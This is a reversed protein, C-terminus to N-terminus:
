RCAGRQPLAPDRHVVDGLAQHCRSERALWSSAQAPVKIISGVSTSVLASSSRNQSAISAIRSSIRSISSPLHVRVVVRQLVRRVRSHLSPAAIPIAGVAALSRTAERGTREADVFVPWRHVAHVVHRPPGCGSRCMGAAPPSDRDSSLLTEFLRRDPAARKSSSLQNASFKIRVALFAM